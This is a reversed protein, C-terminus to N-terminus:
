MVSRSLGSLEVWVWSGNGCAHEGYLTDKIQGLRLTHTRHGSCLPCTQKLKCYTSSLSFYSCCVGSPKVKALFWDDLGQCKTFIRNTLSELSGSSKTKYWATSYPYVRNGKSGHWRIAEFSQHWKRVYLWSASPSLSSVTMVLGSTQPAKELKKAMSEVQSLFYSEGSKWPQHIWSFLIENTLQM